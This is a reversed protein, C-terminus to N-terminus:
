NDKPNNRKERNEAIAKISNSSNHLYYCLTNEEVNIAGDFPAVAITLVVVDDKKDFNKKLQNILDEVTYANTIYRSLKKKM